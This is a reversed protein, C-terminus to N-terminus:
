PATPSSCTAFRYGKAGRPKLARDRFVISMAGAHTACLTEFDRHRYEIDIVANGYRHLFPSCEQFTQCQEVVAFDFPLSRMSVANKQAIALGLRHASNILRRAMAANDARTLRDRSRTWSDLNDPEVAAFGKDACGKMWRSEIRVIARRKAATSTDLLVEGPWNRDRTGAVLGPHKRRWWSIEGPQTQFANIYCINYVGPVPRETRDRAVIRVDAAPRYPGGLQYDAPAPTPPLVILAALLM